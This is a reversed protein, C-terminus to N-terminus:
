QGNRQEEALALEALAPEAVEHHRQEDTLARAVLMVNREAVEHCRQEGVPAMAELAVACEAAKHCHQVKALSQATSM